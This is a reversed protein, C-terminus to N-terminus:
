PALRRISFFGAGLLAALWLVLAGLAYAPSFPLTSALGDLGSVPAAAELAALNFIRFADGPNAVVFFPFLTKAFVGGNDAVVGALLALDYLVVVLIWIGVAFAAATGTRLSLISVVMGVAIFVAGLLIATVLLRGWAVVGPLDFGFLGGAAIGATGYGIIVAISLVLVLGFFKGILLEFRNVPTALVLAMTGREVEGAFCDYSILLAILPILYGSLTAISAAGLSLVDVKLTASGAGPFSLAVAFLTLIITALLVWRNRLSIKFEAGAIAAIRALANM